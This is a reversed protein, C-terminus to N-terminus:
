EKQGWQVTQINGNWDNQWGDPKIEAECRIILGQNNFVNSGMNIVNKPIYISELSSSDFANDYIATLSRPLNISTLSANQFAKFGIYTIGEPLKLQQITTNSVFAENGIGTVKKNKILNPIELITPKGSYLGIINITGRPNYTYRIETYDDAWEVGTDGTSDFIVKLTSIENPYDKHLDWGPQWFKKPTMTESYIVRSDIENFANPEIFEVNEPIVLLGNFDVNFANQRITTLSDPLIISQLSSGRRNVFINEGLETIQKKEWYLSRVDIIDNMYLDVKELVVNNRKTGDPFLTEKEVITFEGKTRRAYLKAVNGLRLNYDTEIILDDKSSVYDGHSNFWAHVNGYNDPIERNLIEKFNANEELPIKKLQLSEIYFILTIYEPTKISYDSGSYSYSTSTQSDQQTYQKCGSIIFSCLLIALAIKRKM